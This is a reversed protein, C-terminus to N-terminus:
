PLKFMTFTIDKLVNTNGFHKEIHKVELIAM